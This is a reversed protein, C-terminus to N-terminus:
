NINWLRVSLWLCVVGAGSLIGNLLYNKKKEKRDAQFCVASCAILLVGFFFMCVCAVKMGLM